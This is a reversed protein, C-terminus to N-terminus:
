WEDEAQILDLIQSMSEETLDNGESYVLKISLKEYM